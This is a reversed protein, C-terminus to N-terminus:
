EQHKKLLKDKFVMWKNMDSMNLNSTTYNSMVKLNHIGKILALRM